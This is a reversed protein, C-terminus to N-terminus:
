RAAVGVTGGKAGSTAPDARLWAGLAAQDTLVRGIGPLGDAALRNGYAAQLPALGLALAALMLASDGVGLARDPLWARVAKALADIHVAVLSSAMGGLDPADAVEVGQRRAQALFAADPAYLPFIRLSSRPADPSAALELVEALRQAAPDVARAFPATAIVAIRPAADKGQRAPVPAAIKRL